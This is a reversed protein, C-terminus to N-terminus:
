ELIQEGSKLEIPEQKLVITRIRGMGMSKIDGQSQRATRYTVDKSAKDVRATSLGTQDGAFSCCAPKQRVANMQLVRSCDLFLLQSLCPFVTPCSLCSDGVANHRGGLHLGIPREPM